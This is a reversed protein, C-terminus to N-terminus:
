VSSGRNTVSLKGIRKRYVLKKYLVLMFLVAGVGRIRVDALKELSSIVNFNDGKRNM